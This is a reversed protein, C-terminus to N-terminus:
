KDLQSAKKKGGERNFDMEDFLFKQFRDFTCNFQEIQLMHIYKRYYIFLNLSTLM